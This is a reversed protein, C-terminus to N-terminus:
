GEGLRRLELPEEGTVEKYADRAATIQSNLLQRIEPNIHPELCALTVDYVKLAGLLQKERYEEKTM